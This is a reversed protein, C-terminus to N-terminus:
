TIAPEPIRSVQIGLLVPSGPAKELAPQRLTRPLSKQLPKYVTSYHSFFYTSIFEPPYEM